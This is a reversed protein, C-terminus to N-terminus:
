GSKNLNKCNRMKGYCFNVSGANAKDVKVWFFERLAHIKKTIKAFAHIKQMLLVFKRRQKPTKCHFKTFKKCIQLFNVLIQWESRLSSDMFFNVSNRWQSVKRLLITAIWLIWVKLSIGNDTKLLGYEIHVENKIFSAIFAGVGM